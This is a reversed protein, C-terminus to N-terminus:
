PKIGIGAWISVRADTLEGDADSPAADPRWRHCVAIGPEILDLGDFFRTVEDKTRFRM